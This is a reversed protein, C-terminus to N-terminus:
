AADAPVVTVLKRRVLAGTFSNKRKNEFRVVGATTAFITDDKGRKTNKGPMFKTGRQRVIIAGEKAM